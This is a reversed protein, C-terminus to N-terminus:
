LRIIVQFCSIAVDHEHAVGRLSLLFSHCEKVEREIFELGVAGVAFSGASKSKM